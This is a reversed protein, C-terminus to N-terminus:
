LLGGDTKLQKYPSVVRTVRLYFIGKKKRVTEVM